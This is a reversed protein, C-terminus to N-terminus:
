RTTVPMAATTINAVATSRRMAASNSDFSKQIATLKMVAMTNTRQIMANDWACYLPLTEGAADYRDM